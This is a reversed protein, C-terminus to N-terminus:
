DYYYGTVSVDTVQTGSKSYYVSCTTTTCTAQSYICDTANVYGGTGLHYSPSSTIQDKQVIITAHRAFSPTEMAKIGIIIINKANALAESWSTTKTLGKYGGIQAKLMKEMM